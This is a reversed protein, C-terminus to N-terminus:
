RIISFFCRINYDIYPHPTVSSDSVYEFIWDSKDTEWVTNAGNMTYCRIDENIPIRFQFNKVGPSNYDAANFAQSSLVVSWDAYIRDVDVTNTGTTIGTLYNENSSQYTEGTKYIALRIVNFIDSALLVTSQSSACTLDIELHHLHIRNKYAINKSSQFYPMGTQPATALLGSTSLLNSLISIAGTTSTVSVSTSIDYFSMDSSLSRLCPLITLNNNSSMRIPRLQKKQKQTKQRKSSLHSQSQFM